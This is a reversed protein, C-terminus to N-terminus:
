KGEAQGQGSSQDGGKYRRTSWYTRKEERVTGDERQLDRGRFVRRSRM